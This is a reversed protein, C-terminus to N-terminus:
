PLWEDRNTGNSLHGVWGRAGRGTPPRGIEEEESADIWRLFWASRGWSCFLRCYLTKLMHFCSPIM